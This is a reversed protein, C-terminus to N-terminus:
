LSFTGSVYRRCAPYYQSSRVSGCPLGTSIDVWKERFWRALPNKKKRKQHLYPQKGLKKMERKYQIVVMGSAYASPWRNVSNKVKKKIANYLKLNTPIARM